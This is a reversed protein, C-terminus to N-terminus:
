NVDGRGQIIFSNTSIVTVPGGANAGTGQTVVSAPKLVVDTYANNKFEKVIEEMCVRIIGTLKNPTGDDNVQTIVGIESLRSVVASTLAIASLGPKRDIECLLMIAPIYSQIKAKDRAFSIGKQVVNSIKTIINQIAM